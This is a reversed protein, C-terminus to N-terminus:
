RPVDRIGPLTEMIQLPGFVLQAGKGFCPKSSGYLSSVVQGSLLQSTEGLIVMPSPISGLLISNGVLSTIAHVVRRRDEQLYIAEYPSGLHRTGDSARPLTLGKAVAPTFAPQQANAQSVAEELTNYLDVPPTTPDLSQRLAASQLIVAHLSGTERLQVQSALRKERLNRAIRSLAFQQGDYGPNLLMRVIHYSKLDAPQTVQRRAEVTAAEKTNAFGTFDQTHKKSHTKRYAM